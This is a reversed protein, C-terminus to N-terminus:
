KAWRLKGELFALKMGCIIRPKIYEGFGGVTGIEHEVHLFVVFTKVM